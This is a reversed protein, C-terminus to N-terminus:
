KLFLSRVEAASRKRQPFFARRKKWARIRKKWACLLSLFLHPDCLAMVMRKLGHSWIWPLHPLRIFYADNKWVMANQEEDRLRIRRRDTGYWNRIRSVLSRNKEQRVTLRWTRASGICQIRYGMWQARWCFDRWIQGDRLDADLWEDTGGSLSSFASARIMICGGGVSFVDQNGDWAGTDPLGQGRAAWHRGRTFMWGAQDVTNTPERKWEEDQTSWARIAIMTKPCAAMLLPDHSFARLLMEVTRDELCVGMDLILVFREHYTEPEWRSLTFAIAQNHAKAPGLYSANRLVVPEAKAKEPREGVVAHGAEEVVM